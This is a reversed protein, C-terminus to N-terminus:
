IAVDPLSLLSAQINQEDNHNLDREVNGGWLDAGRRMQAAQYSPKQDPKVERGAWPPRGHRLGAATPRLRSGAMFRARTICQVISFSASEVNKRWRGVESRSM